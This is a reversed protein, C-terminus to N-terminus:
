REEGETTGAQAPPNGEGGGILPKGEKYEAMLENAQAEYSAAMAIALRRSEPTDLLAGEFLWNHPTRGDRLDEAAQKLRVAMYVRNDCKPHTGWGGMGGGPEARDVGTTYRPTCRSLWWQALWYLALGVFPALCVAVWLWHLVQEANM